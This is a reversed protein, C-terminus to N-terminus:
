IELRDWFTDDKEDRRFRLRKEEDIFLQKNYCLATYGIFDQNNNVLYFLDFEFNKVRSIDGERYAEVPFSVSNNQIFNDSKNLQLSLFKEDSVTVYEEKWLNGSVYFIILVDDFLM